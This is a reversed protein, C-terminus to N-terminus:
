KKRAQTRGSRGHLHLGPKFGNKPPPPPPPPPVSWFFLHEFFSFVTSQVEPLGADVGAGVDAGTGAGEGGCLLVGVGVGEGGEAGTGM